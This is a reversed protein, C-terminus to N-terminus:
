PLLAEEVFLLSTARRMLVKGIPLTDDGALIKQAITKKEAGAIIVIVTKAAVIPAMALTVRRLPPKPSTTELVISTLDDLYKEGPFLSATHGDDGVGLFVVDFVPTGNGFHTKLIGRYSKSSIAFHTRDASKGVKSLFLRCATGWNSAPDDLEVMREDLPFFSAERCDPSRKAWLPFLREFTSGGSLAIAGNQLYPLTLAALEDFSHFVKTTFRRSDPVNSEGM